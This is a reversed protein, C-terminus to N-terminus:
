NNEDKIGKYDENMLNLLLNGAWDHINIYKNKFSM